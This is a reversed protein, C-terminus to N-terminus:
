LTIPRFSSLAIGLSFVFQQYPAVEVARVLPLPSPGRPPAAEEVQLPGRRLVGGLGKARPGQSSSGPGSGLALAYGHLDWPRRRSAAKDTTSETVRGPDPVRGPVKHKLKWRDHDM